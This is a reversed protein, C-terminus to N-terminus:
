HALAKGMPDVCQHKPKNHAVSSDAKKVESKNILYSRANTLKSTAPTFPDNASWIAGEADQLVTRKAGKM